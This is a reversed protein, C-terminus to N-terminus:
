TELLIRRHIICSFHAPDRDGCVQVNYGLGQLNQFFPTRIGDPVAVAGIEGGFELPLIGFNVGGVVGGALVVGPCLGIGIFDLLAVNHGVEVRSGSVGEGNRQHLADARFQQLDICPVIDLAPPLNHVPGGPGHNGGFVPLVVFRGAAHFNCVAFGEVLIGDSEQGIDDPVRNM